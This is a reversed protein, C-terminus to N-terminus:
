THATQDLADDRMAIHREDLADLEVQTATEVHVLRTDAGPLVRLIEDLKRQLATQQRTQTHQLAFVMVLTVATALAEFATLWRSASDALLAALLFGASVLAAVATAASSASADNLSHLWRSLWPQDQRLHELRHGRLRRALVQQDLDFANSYPQRGQGSAPHGPSEEPRTPTQRANLRFRM